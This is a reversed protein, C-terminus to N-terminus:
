GRGPRVSWSWCKKKRLEAMAWISKKSAFEASPVFVGVGANCYGMAEELQEGVTRTREPVDKVHLFSRFDAEELYFQLPPAVRSKHPGAHAHSIFVVM